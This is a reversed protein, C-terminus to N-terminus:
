TRDGPAPQDHGTSVGISGLSAGGGGGGGSNGGSSGGGGRDSNTEPRPGAGGRDEAAGAEGPPPVDALAEACAERAEPTWELGACSAVEARVAKMAAKMQRSTKFPSWGLLAGADKQMMGDRYVMALLFRQEDSLKAIARAMAEIILAHQERRAAAEGPEDADRDALVSVRTPGDTEGASTPADLTLDPKRKRYRSVALKRATDLLYNLLSADGRYRIIMAPQRGDPLAPRDPDDAIHKAITDSWLDEAPYDAPRRMPGMIRQARPGIESDIAIWAADIRHGAAWALYLDGDHRSSAAAVHEHFASAGWDVDPWRSRAQEFRDPDHSTAPM